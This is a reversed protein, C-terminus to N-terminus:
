RGKGPPADPQKPRRPTEPWPANLNVLDVSDGTAKQWSRIRDRLQAVRDRHRQDSFLNRREQPDSTLDYLEGEGVDTLTLKWRDPTILTRQYYVHQEM